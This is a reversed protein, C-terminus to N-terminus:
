DILKDLFYMFALLFVAIVTALCISEITHDSM